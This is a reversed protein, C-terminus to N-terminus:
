LPQRQDEERDSADPRWYVAPLGLTDSLLELPDDSDMKRLHHVVLVAIGHSDALTKLDQGIRYDETYLDGRGSRAPRIRALTDM